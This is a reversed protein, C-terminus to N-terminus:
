NNTNSTNNKSAMVAIPTILKQFWFMKKEWMTEDIGTRHQPTHKAPTEGFFVEVAITM